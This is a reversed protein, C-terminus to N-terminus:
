LLIRSRLAGYRELVQLYAEAAEQETISDTHHTGDAFPHYGTSNASFAFAHSRTPQPHLRTLGCNTCRSVPGGRSTFLYTWDDFSCLPCTSRSRSTQGAFSSRDQSVYTNSELQSTIPPHSM